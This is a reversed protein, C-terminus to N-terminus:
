LIKFLVEKYYSREALTLVDNMASLRLGLGVPTFYIRVKFLLPTILWRERNAKKNGQVKGRLKFIRLKASNKIASPLTLFIDINQKLGPGGQTNKSM